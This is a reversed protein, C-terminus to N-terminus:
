NIWIFIVNHRLVLVFYKSLANVVHFSVSFNLFYDALWRFFDVFRDPGLNSSVHFGLFCSFLMSLNYSPGLSHSNTSVILNVFFSDNSCISWWASCVYRIYFCYNLLSNIFNWINSILNIWTFPSVSLSASGWCLHCGNWLHACLNFVSM